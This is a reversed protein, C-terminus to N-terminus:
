PIIKCSAGKKVLKNAYDMILDDDIASAVVIYYRGTRGSLAEITGEAPKANAAALSDAVHQDRIRKQEALQEEAQKRADAELKELRLKEAAADQKPKYSLFYWAAGGALLLVVVFGLVKPWVSSEEEEEAYPSKYEQEEVVEEQYSEEIEPAVEEPEAVPEAAPEPASPEDRKLPEYEIEPLGFTDDSENNINDQSEDENQKKRRAM